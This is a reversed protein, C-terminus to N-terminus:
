RTNRLRDAADGDARDYAAAVARLSDATGHASGAASTMGDVMARQLGNLLDPVLQCLHGYAGPDTQVARGADAASTLGDGLRDVQDAHAVLSASRVQVADHPSM